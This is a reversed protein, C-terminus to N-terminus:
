WSLVTGAWSLGVGFGLLLIRQGEVLKSRNSLDTLAMPITSSVTNGWTSMEMAFKSEPINLKKRLHELMFANAQHFVFHDIDDLQLNNKALIEQLSDSAVRITFNFIEPGDMFLSYPHNPLTRVSESSNENLSIGDRLSGNPLMLSGAGSGDTGYVFAGINEISGRDSIWTASAGDGFITRVSKDSPNLYKSYTDSTILLVNRAQGTEIIGKALGLAYVYGSCGLNVDMGGISTRLGLQNQVLGATGPLAFDSSQTVVILYDFDEPDIEVTRLLSLGAGVALDSAYEDDGAIHRNYIGTKSSIKDVSWEPFESSLMENTLVRAPLYKAVREIKAKM